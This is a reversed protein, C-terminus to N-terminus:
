KAAQRAQALAELQAGDLYGDRDTDFSDFVPRLADGYADLTVERQGSEARAVPVLHAPIEDGRLVGDRDADAQAFRRIMANRYEEFSLKGDGDRDMRKLLGAATVPDPAAGAKAQKQAAPVPLAICLLLILLLPRCPKMRIEQHHAAALRRREPAALGPLTPPRPTPM